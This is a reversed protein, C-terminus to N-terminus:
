GRSEITAMMADFQKDNLSRRHFWNEPAIPGVPENIRDLTARVEALTCGIEAPRYRVRCSDLLAKTEDFDSEYLYAGILAGLSVAESHILERQHV